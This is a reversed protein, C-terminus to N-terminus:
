MVFPRGMTIAPKENGSPEGNAKSSKVDGFIKHTECTKDGLHGRQISLNKRYWPDRRPNLHHKM